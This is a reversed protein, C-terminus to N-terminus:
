MFVHISSAVHVPILVHLLPVPECDAGVDQRHRAMLVATVAAGHHLLSLRQGDAASTCADSKQQAAIEWARASCPM